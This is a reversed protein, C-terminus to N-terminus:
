KYQCTNSFPYLEFIKPFSEITLVPLTWDGFQQFMVGDKIQFKYIKRALTKLEANTIETLKPLLKTEKLHEYLRSLAKSNKQLNRIDGVQTKDIQGNGEKGEELEGEEEEEEEGNGIVQV